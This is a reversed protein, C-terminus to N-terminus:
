EHASSQRARHPLSSLDFPLRADIQARDDENTLSLTGGLREVHDRVGDLSSIFPGSQDNPDDGDGEDSMRLRLVDDERRVVLGATDVDAYWMLKLLTEQVVQFVTKKMLSSLRAGKLADGLDLRVTFDHQERMKNRMSELAAALGQEKLVTPHLRRSITRSVTGIEDALQKM